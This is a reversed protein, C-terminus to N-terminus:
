IGDEETVMELQTDVEDQMKIAMSIRRAEELKDEPIDCIAEEKTVVMANHLSLGHTKEIPIITLNATKKSCVSKYKYARLVSRVDHKSLLGVVTAACADEIIREREPQPLRAMLPLRQCHVCRRVM